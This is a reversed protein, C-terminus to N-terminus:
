TNPSTGIKQTRQLDLFLRVMMSSAENTSLSWVQERKLLRATVAYQTGTGHQVPAPHTAAVAARTFKYLADERSHVEGVAAVVDHRVDRGAGVADVDRLQPPAPVVETLSRRCM